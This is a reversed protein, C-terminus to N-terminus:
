VDGLRRPTSDFLLAGYVSRAARWYEAVELVIHAVFALNSVQVPSSEERLARPSSM